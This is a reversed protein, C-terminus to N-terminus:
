KVNLNYKGKAFCNLAFLNNLNPFRIIKVRKVRSWIVNQSKMDLTTIPHSYLLYLDDVQISPYKLSNEFSYLTTWSLSCNLWHDLSDKAHLFDQNWELCQMPDLVSVSVNLLSRPMGGHLVWSLDWFLLFFFNSM